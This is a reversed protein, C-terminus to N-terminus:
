RLIILKKTQSFSDSTMRYLYVGSEVLKGDSDRGDWIVRYRDKKEFGSVLRRILQGKVNYVSLDVHSDKSISYEIVTSPNFPNPYNNSLHNRIPAQAEEMNELSSGPIRKIMGDSQLVDGFVMRISRSLVNSEGGDGAALAITGIEIKEGRVPLQSWVAIFTITKGGNTVPVAAVSFPVELRPIWDSYKIDPNEYSLGICVTSLDEVNTLYITAYYDVNDSAKVMKILVGTTSMSVKGDNDTIMQPNECTHSYHTGFIAFDTLNCSNDYNFDCCPNFSKGPPNPGALSTGYGSGFIPLDSLNVAGNLNLDPSKINVKLYNDSCRDALAGILTISDCGAIRSYSCETRGGEDTDNLAFLTDKGNCSFFHDGEYILVHTKSASIGATPDGNSDKITYIARLTDADGAPCGLIQGYESSPFSLVASAFDDIPKTIGSSANSFENFLGYEYTLAGSYSGHHAASIKYSYNHLVLATTDIYESTGSAVSTSYVYQGQAVNEYQERYINYCDILSDDASLQWSIRLANGRDYPIDSATLCSPAGFHVRTNNFYVPNGTAAKVQESTPPRQPAFSIGADLFYYYKHGEVLPYHYWTNTYPYPEMIAPGVLDPIIRAPGLPNDSIYVAVEESPNAGSLVFDLQVRSNNKTAQFSQIDAVPVLDLFDYSPAFSTSTISCSIGCGYDANFTFSNYTRYVINAYNPDMFSVLSPGVGQDIGTTVVAHGVVDPQGANCYIALINESNTCVKEAFAGESIWNAIYECDGGKRFGALNMLYLIDNQNLGVKCTANKLYDCSYGFICPEYLDINLAKYCAYANFDRQNYGYGYIDCLYELCAAWCLTYTMRVSSLSRNCTITDLQGQTGVANYQTAHALLTGRTCTAMMIIGLVLISKRAKM